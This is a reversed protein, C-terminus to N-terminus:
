NILQKIEEISLNNECALKKLDEYEIKEKKTGYGEGTKKRVTGYPTKLETITRDLVYREFKHARIGFTSTYKFIAKIVDEKKDKKCLTCLMVAPRSKKMQIPVTYVDKAGAEFIKEAAFGIEEGTCDDINCVLEIVSDKGDKEPMLDDKNEATEGLMIRLANLVQFDKKGMGYGIKKTKLVPMSGFENVFYKLLAAGTPTCMEGDIDTSYIPIDKLIHATAPAPVPLIGHACKVTGKGVQVNSAFVKQPKLEEMLLCVATIDAIADLTGVEHFHIQSTQVGHVFSEAEAIIEYVSIIDNKVKDSVNLKLVINQIDAMSTHEHSLGIEHMCSNNNKHSISHEDHGENGKHYCAHADTDTDCAHSQEVKGDVLVSMHTGCIGHKQTRKSIYKVKPIGINNLKLVFADPDDLLELLAATIMDGAAGASCDIYLAKM